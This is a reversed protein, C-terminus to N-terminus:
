VIKIAIWLLLAAIVWLAVVTWRSRRSEARGLEVITWPSLLLGDRTVEDLRELVRAGRRLLGPASGILRGLDTAGEAVSELKGAPGLHRTMWERVVPEATSWM